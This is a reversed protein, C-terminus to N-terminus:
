DYLGENKYFRSINTWENMKTRVREKPNELHGM